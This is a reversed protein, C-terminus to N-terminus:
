FFLDMWIFNIRNHYFVISWKIKFFPVVKYKIIFVIMMKDHKIFNTFYILLLILCFFFCCHLSFLFLDLIILTCLCWIRVLILMCTYSSFDLVSRGPLIGCHYLKRQALYITQHSTIRIRSHVAHDGWFM